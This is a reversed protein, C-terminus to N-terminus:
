GLSVQRRAGRGAACGPRDQDARGRVPEAALFQQDGVCTDVGGPRDHRVGRDGGGIDGLVRGLVPAPRQGHELLPRDGDANQDGVQRRPPSRLRTRRPGPAARRPPPLHPRGARVARGSPGGAPWVPATIFVVVIPPVVISVLPWPKVRYQNAGIGRGPRGAVPGAATSAAPSRRGVAPGPTVPRNPAIVQDSPEVLGVVAPM